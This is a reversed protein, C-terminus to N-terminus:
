VPDGYIASMGRQHAPAPIEIVGYSVCAFGNVIPVIAEPPVSYGTAAQLYQAARPEGLYEVFEVTPQSALAEVFTDTPVCLDSQAQVKVPMAFWFLLIGLLFILISACQVCLFVARLRRQTVTM